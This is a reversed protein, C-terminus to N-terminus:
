VRELPWVEVRLPEWQASVLPPGSPTPLGHSELMTSHLSGLTARCLPWPRHHVRARYLQGRRESYLCYREVLFFEPSGPPAPPMVEGLTWAAQFEAPPTGCKRRCSYYRITQGAQELRMDARFYPLHFVKRAGWVLVPNAADLSLFWVGPVGDLHVYTRVNLEHSISLVPLAPFFLPRIGWMTFPILGVWARGDFTDLQLRAPVLPRIIDEPVPWHLFLLKGWCQHMVPWGAPRVCLSLRDIM